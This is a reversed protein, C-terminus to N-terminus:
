NPETGAGDIKQDPVSDPSRGRVLWYTLKPKKRVMLNLLRVRITYLINYVIYM